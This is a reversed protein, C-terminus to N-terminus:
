LAKSSYEGRAHFVEEHFELISLKECVHSLDVKMGKRM